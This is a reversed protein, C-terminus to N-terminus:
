TIFLKINQVGWGISNPHKFRSLYFPRPVYCMHPLPSTYVPNQHPSRLSLSWKSSGPRSSIIINLHVKLCHSTPTHVPDFQSLIPVPPPCKHICYHVKPDWLIRPIKQSTSCQNAKWFPSQQMSSTLFSTLLCAVVYWCYRVHLKSFYVDYLLNLVNIDIQKIKKFFVVM